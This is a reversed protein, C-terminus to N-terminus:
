RQGQDAHCEGTQTREPTPLDSVACGSPPPRATTRAAGPSGTLAKSGPGAGVTKPCESAPCSASSVSGAPFLATWWPRLVLPLSLACTAAAAKRKGWGLVRGPM